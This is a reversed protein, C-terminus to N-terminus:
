KVWKSLRKFEDIIKFPNATAILDAGADFMALALKATFIGGSAMIKISDGVEKKIIGVDEVTTIAGFGDNTKIITADTEAILRAAIRKEEDTLFTAAPIVSLNKIKGNVVRLVARIDEKVKEYNKSKFSNLDMFMDIQQAGHKVAYEAYKVKLSTPLGGIPYAVIAVTDIDTDKLLRAGLELHSPNFAVGAIYESYEKCKEVFEKVKKDTVNPEILSTDFRKKFMSLSIM